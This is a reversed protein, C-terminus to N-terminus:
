NGSDDYENFMDSCLLVYCIYMPVTDFVEKEGIAEAMKGNMGINLFLRYRFYFFDPAFVPEKQKINKALSVSPRMDLINKKKYTLNSIANQNGVVQSTACSDFENQEFTILLFM